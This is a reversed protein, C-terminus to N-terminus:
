LAHELWGCYRTAKLKLKGAKKRFM